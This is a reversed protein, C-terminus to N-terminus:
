ATKTTSALFAKSVNSVEDKYAQVVDPTWVVAAIDQTRGKLDTMDDTPTSVSRTNARAIEIGDELISYITLKQIVGDPNITLYDGILEKTIM